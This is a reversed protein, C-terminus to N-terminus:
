RRKFVRVRGWGVRRSRSRSHKVQNGQGWTRPDATGTRASGRPQPTERERAEGGEAERKVDKLFQEVARLLAEAQEREKTHTEDFTSKVSAPAYPTLRGQRYDEYKATAENDVRFATLECEYGAFLNTEYFFDHIPAKGLITPLSTIGISGHSYEDFDEPVPCGIDSYFRAVLQKFRENQRPSLEICEFHRKGCLFGAPDCGWFASGSSDISLITQGICRETSAQKACMDIGLWAPSNVTAPSCTISYAAEPYKKWRFRIEDWTVPPVRPVYSSIRDEQESEEAEVSGCHISVSVVFSAAACCCWPLYRRIGLQIRRRRSDHRM